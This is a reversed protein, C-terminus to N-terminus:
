DCCALYHSQILQGLYLASSPLIYVYTYTGQGTTRLVLLRASSSYCQSTEVSGAYLHVGSDGQELGANLRHGHKAANDSKLLLACQKKENQNFMRFDRPYQQCSGFVPFM